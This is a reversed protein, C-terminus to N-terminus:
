DCDQYNSNMCVRARRQAESIDAPTMNEALGNRNTVGYESSNAGAINFWMHATINDQLVGHGKDYMAGLNNQAQANGQKAALRFWKAAEAYDQPVGRGKDYMAGLNHQASANGQEAALRWLRLATSYDGRKYASSADDFKDASAPAAAFMMLSILIVRLM